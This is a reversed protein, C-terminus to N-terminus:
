IGVKGAHSKLMVSRTFTVDFNYNLYIQNANTGALYDQVTVVSLNEVCIVAFDM